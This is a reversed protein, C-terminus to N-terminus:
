KLSIPLRLSSSEPVLRICGNLHGFSTHLVDMFLWPVSSFALWCHSVSVVSAGSSSFRLHRRSLSSYRTSRRLARLTIFPSSLSCRSDAHSSISCRSFVLQLLSRKSCTLRTVFLAHGFTLNIWLSVPAINVFPQISSRLHCYQAFRYEAGSESLAGSAVRRVDSFESLVASPNPHSLVSGTGEISSVSFAQFLFLSLVNLSKFHPTAASCQPDRVNLM